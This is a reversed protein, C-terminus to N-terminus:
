SAPLTEGPKDAQPGAGPKLAYFKLADDKTAAGRYHMEIVRTSNGAWSASGALDGTLADRYTIATHRLVNRPLAVKAEDAVRLLRLTYIDELNRTDEPNFEIDEPAFIRGTRNRFPQLWALLTESVEVARKKRIKTKELRLYRDRIWEYEIHPIESRRPGAFLQILLAPFVDAHAPKCGEDLLKKADEPTLIATAVEDLSPRSIKAAPNEGRWGQEVAYNFLANLTIIFNIRTKPTAPVDEDKGTLGLLFVELKPKSITDIMVGGGFEERIAKMQSELNALYREKRNDSKRSAVFDNCAKLLTVSGKTPSHRLAYELAETVSMGREKLRGIFNNGADDLAELLGKAYDKAAAESTFFKREKKRGTISAPVNLRWRHARVLPDTILREDKDIKVPPRIKNKV